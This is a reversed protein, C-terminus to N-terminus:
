IKGLTGLIKMHTDIHTDMHTDIHTDMYTCGVCSHIEEYM